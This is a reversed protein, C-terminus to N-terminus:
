GEYAARLKRLLEHAQWPPSCNTGNWESMLAMAETIDIGEEHLRCCLKYTTADGGQGEIAQIAGMWARIDKIKPSNWEDERVLEPRWSMDFVPLRHPKFIWKGEPNDKTPWVTYQWGNRISGPFLVYSRDGKVDHEFQKGDLKLHSGSKVYQGPHRYYYHMGRRTKVRLPTPPMKEEWELWGERTDCDVVVFGNSEGTLCAINCGPYNWEKLPNDICEGWKIAPKKDEGIPIVSIGNEICWKAVSEIWQM